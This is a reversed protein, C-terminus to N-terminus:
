LAFNLHQKAEIIAQECVSRVADYDEEFHPHKESNAAETEIRHLVPHLRENLGMYSVSSKMGHAISKIQLLNRNTIAENMEKLEQPVQIMFQQLITQEFDVDGM